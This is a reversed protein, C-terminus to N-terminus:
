GRSLAVFFFLCFSLAPLLGFIVLLAVLCGKGSPSRSTAREVQQAERLFVINAILGPFWFILYCVLVVIAETLFSREAATAQQQVRYDFTPSRPPAQQSSFDYPYPSTELPVPAGCNACFKDEPRLDQGCNPCQM